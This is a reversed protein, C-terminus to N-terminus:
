DYTSVMRRRCNTSGACMTTASIPSPAPSQSRPPALGGMTMSATTSATTPASAGGATRTQWREEARLVAPGMNASQARMNAREEAEKERQAKKPVEDLAAAREIQRQRRQQAM